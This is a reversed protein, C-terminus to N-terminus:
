EAKMSNGTPFRLRKKITFAKNPRLTLLARHCLTAAGHALQPTVSSHYCLGEHHQPPERKCLEKSCFYFFSASIGRGQRM